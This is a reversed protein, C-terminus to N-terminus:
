SSPANPDSADLWAGVDADLRDLDSRRTYFMHGGDYYRHTVQSLRDRPVDLGDLTWDTGSFPTGLDYLGSTVLVKLRPNRRIARSLDPSTSCFANGNDGARKWNWAKLVEWNLTEYRATEEVGLADRFYSGMAMVYPANIAEIGPDMEFSRTMRAALPSTCRADLRGIQLGRDRLAEFFFTQDDIRLNNQEILTRPLGTLESLRRAARSFDDTTLSAGQFLERLYRDRVYARAEGIAADRSQGLAGKLRGHHQAVCAFAPLFCAYAVDNRPKFLFTQFDLAVSILVVGALGVGQALLADSMAAARTSGYSEGALYVKSGWRGNRALWARVVETMAACDGDVSLVEDRAATDAAVSWGTHPPDIFVLDFHKLWTAPNDVAEYPGEPLAGDEPTDVRKPGLAGLHLWVSASGPGGNFAFCVPRPGSPKEQEYAVTFVAARPEGRREGLRYDTVPIFAATTRYAIQSGDSLGVSGHRVVPARDLLAEMAKREGGTEGGREVGKSTEAM